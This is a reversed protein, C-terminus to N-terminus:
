EDDDKEGAFFGGLTHREQPTLPQYDPDDLFSFRMRYEAIMNQFNFGWLVLEGEPGWIRIEDLSIMFVVAAIELDMGPRTYWVRTNIQIRKPDIM